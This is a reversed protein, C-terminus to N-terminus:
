RKQLLKFLADNYIEDFDEGAVQFRVTWRLAKGRYYAEFYTLAGDQKSGFVRCWLEFLYQPDSKGTQQFRIDEIRIKHLLEVYTLSRLSDHESCNM